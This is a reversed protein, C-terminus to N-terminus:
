VLQMQLKVKEKYQNNQGTWCKPWGHTTKLHARCIFLLHITSENM